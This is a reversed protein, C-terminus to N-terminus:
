QRVKNPPEGFETGGCGPSGAPDSHSLSRGLWAPLVALLTLQAAVFAGALLLGFHVVM